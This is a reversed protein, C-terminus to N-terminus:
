PSYSVLDGRPLEVHEPEEGEGLADGVVLESELLLPEFRLDELLEVLRTGGEQTLARTSGSGTGSGTGSGFRVLDLCLPLCRLTAFVFVRLCSATM